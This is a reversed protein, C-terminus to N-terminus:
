MNAIRMEENEWPSIGSPGVFVMYTQCNDLAEELGEQRPEGRILNWKDLWVKVGKAKLKHALIEVAPKDKGKHSIFVDIM